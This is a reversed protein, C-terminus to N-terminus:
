VVLRPLLYLLHSDKLGVNVAPQGNDDRGITLAYANGEFCVYYRTGGQMAEILAKPTLRWMLGDKSPGGIHTIEKFGDVSVFTIEVAVAQNLGWNRQDDRAMDPNEQCVVAL